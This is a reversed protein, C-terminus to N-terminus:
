DSNIVQRHPLTLTLPLPLTLTLTLTLYVTRDVCQPAGVGVRGGMVYSVYLTTMM